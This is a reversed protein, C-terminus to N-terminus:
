AALTVSVPHPVKYFPLRNLGNGTIFLVKPNEYHSLIMGSCPTIMYILEGENSYYFTNGELDDKFLAPYTPEDTKITVTAL